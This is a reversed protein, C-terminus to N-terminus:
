QNITDRINKLDHMTDNVLDSDLPEEETMHEDHTGLFKTSKSGRLTINNNQIVSRNRGLLPISGVM